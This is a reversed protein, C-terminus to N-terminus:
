NSKKQPGKQAEAAVDALIDGSEKIALRFNAPVYGAKNDVVEAFRPNALGVAAYPVKPDVVTFFPIFGTPKDVLMRARLLDEVAQGSPVIVKKGERNKVNLAILVVDVKGKLEPHEMYAPKPLEGDIVNCWPCWDGGFVVLLLRNQAAAKQAATVFVAMQDDCALYRKYAQPCLPMQKYTYGPPMSTWPTISQAHSPAALSVIAVFGAILSAITQAARRM